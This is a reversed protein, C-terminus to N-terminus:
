QDVSFRHFMCIYKQALCMAYHSQVVYPASSTASAGDFEQDFLHCFWIFEVSHIETDTTKTCKYNTPCWHLYKQTTNTTYKIWPSSQM